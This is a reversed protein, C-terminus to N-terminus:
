EDYYDVGAETACATATGSDVSLAQAIIADAIIAAQSKSLPEDATARVRRITRRRLANPNADHYRKFSAAVMSPNPEDNRNFCSMLFPLVTTILALITAPDFGVAQPDIREATFKAQQELNTIM